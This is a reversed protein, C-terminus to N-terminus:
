MQVVEKKMTRWKSYESFLVQRGWYRWRQSSTMEMSFNEKRLKAKFNLVLEKEGWLFFYNKIEDRYEDSQM